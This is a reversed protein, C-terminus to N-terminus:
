DDLVNSVKTMNGLWKDLSREKCQIPKLTKTENRAVALRDRNLALAIQCGPSYIPNWIKNLPSNDHHDKPKYRWAMFKDYETKDNILTILHDAFDKLTNFQSMPLFSTHLYKPLLRQLSDTGFYLPLTGATWGHNMTEDVYDECDFKMLSFAFKHMKLLSIKSDVFNTEGKRVLNNKEVNRLCDGYSKIRIFKSIEQLFKTRRENCTSFVAAAYDYKQHFHIPDSIMPQSIKPNPFDSDMRYGISYNFQSMFTENELHRNVLSPENYYLIWPINKTKQPLLGPQKADIVIGDIFLEHKKDTVFLYRIPCEFRAKGYNPFLHSEINYMRGENTLSQSWLLIKIKPKPLPPVYKFNKNSYDHQDHFYNYSITIRRGIMISLLNGNRKVTIIKYVFTM